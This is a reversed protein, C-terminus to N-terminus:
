PSYDMKAQNSFFKKKRQKFKTGNNMLNANNFLSLLVIM